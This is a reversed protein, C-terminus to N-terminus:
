TSQLGIKLGKVSAGTIRSVIRGVVRAEPKMELRAPNAVTGSIFGAEGNGPVETSLDAMGDARVHLVVRHPAPVAPFHFDGHADTVINFMWELPTSQVVNALIPNNDDKGGAGRMSMLRVGAKAIPRGNGDRVNGVVLDAQALVLNVDEAPTGD